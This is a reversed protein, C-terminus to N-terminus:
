WVEQIIAHYSDIVTNICDPPKSPRRGELFVIKEDLSAVPNAAQVLIHKNPLPKAAGSGEGRVDHCYFLGTDDGM